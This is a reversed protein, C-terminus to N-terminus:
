LTETRAREARQRGAANRLVDQFASRVRAIDHREVATEANRVLQQRLAIDQVIRRMARKLQEISRECVTHGWGADRAYRVQAVEEPGYVLSPSGSILYAPVKTPMSYRIFDVSASDFNVPLLLADADALTKFFKQEDEIPASLQISSDIALRSGFRSLNNASSIINLQAPFGEANLEAIARACDMLSELQANPFISGVYLFVPRERAGLSSKTLPRWRETDLAYQFPTFPRAYRAAFAECMMDSIGLCSEAVSFMHTLWRLMRIRELPAFLGHRHASTAWDDMIHVVLPLDFERRIDDILSMMGNSGLITYLVQPQYDSIYRRLAPSLRAREPISDGFLSQRLRNLILSRQSPAQTVAGVAPLRTTKSRALRRLHNFPTILDLEDAGLVFYRDCTDTPSPNPDNHITALQDKPWGQFLSSFTAGGGAYPNFAVPTVFLVRPYEPM